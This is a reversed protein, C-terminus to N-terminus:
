RFYGIHFGSKEDGGVVTLFEPPDYFYRWHLLYNVSDPDAKDFKGALIDYPGVLRLGVTEQLADLLCFWFLSVLLFIPINIDSNIRQSTAWTLKGNILEMRNIWLPSLVIKSSWLTSNDCMLYIQTLFNLSIFVFKM